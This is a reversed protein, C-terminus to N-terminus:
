KKMRKKWGSLDLERTPEINENWRDKIGSAKRRKGRTKSFSFTWYKTTLPQFYFNVKRWSELSWYELKLLWWRKRLMQLNWWWHLKSSKWSRDSYYCIYMTWYNNKTAPAWFKLKRNQRKMLGSKLWLGFLQLSCLPMSSLCIAWFKLIIIKLWQRPQNWLTTLRQLM